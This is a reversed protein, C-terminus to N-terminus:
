HQASLFEALVLNRLITAASSLKRPNLALLCIPRTFRHGTLPVVMLRHEALEHRIARESLFAVGMGASVAEKIAETNTLEFSVRQTIGLSSLEQDVRIRTGSTQGRAILRENALEHVDVSPVNVWRHRPGVVLVLEDLGLMEVSLEPLDPRSAVIGLEAEGRLVLQEVQLRDHIQITVQVGPYDALFHGLLQPLLYTGPTSSAAIVLHGSVLGRIDQLSQEAEKLTELIRASYPAFLKGAENLYARRGTRNFLSIGLRAELGAIQGSVYPQSVRLEEAARSFSSSKAVANFVRLQALTLNSAM